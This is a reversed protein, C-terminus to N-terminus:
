RAQIHLGARVTHCTTARRLALKILYPLKHKANCDINPCQLEQEALRLCNMECLISSAQWSSNTYREDVKRSQTIQCAGHAPPTEACHQTKKKKVANSPPPEPMMALMLCCLLLICGNYSYGNRVTKGVPKTETCRQMGGQNGM